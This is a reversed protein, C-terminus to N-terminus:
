SFLINYLEDNTRNLRNIEWCIGTITAKIFNSSIPGDIRNYIPTYQQQLNCNSEVMSALVSNLIRLCELHSEMEHVLEYKEEITLNDM